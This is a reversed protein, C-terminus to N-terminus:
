RKPPPANSWPAPKGDVTNPEMLEVRTGDPDYLNMQRKRNLGTRVELPRTYTKRYPSRELLEQAKAMDAVELCLHNATGRQDPPPLDKYLMFEVYDDGDPVQMNTWSLQSPDRGGRWTERFGLVDAYFKTSAALDGVLFGLHGIRSSVRGAPLYKGKDRVTWGEPTYEMFEIIHGDPDLVTFGLNGIRGKTVRDPAKYGRAALWARMAEANEVRLAVQYLRDQGPKLGPFLEIFQEDNVKINWLLTSGDDNKLEFAQAYGFFQTYFARAAAPDSVLLGAHSVGLIRPQQQAPLMGAAALALTLILRM